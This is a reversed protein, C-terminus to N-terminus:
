LNTGSLICPFFISKWKVKLIVLSILCSLMDALPMSWLVGMIGIAHGLILALPITLIIQRLLSLGAAYVPKGIAQFFMAVLCGCPMLYIFMNYFRLCKRAFDMYLDSEDGFLLLLTDPFLQFVAWAAALIIISIWISKKFCEKVRDFQEAGYNFGLIPQTGGGIGIVISTVLQNLKCTVGFAALPIDPGYISLGGYFVMLNNIVIIIIVAAGQNIFSALGLSCTKKLISPKPLFYEKKLKITKFKTLCIVYYIACLAQGIVTAWAAGAMGWDLVLVFIADLVINAVCGMVLGIMSEKPRGDARILGGLGCGMISVPFGVLIIRGYEICYPMSDVTAGFINCLPELFIQFVVLLIVGSAIVSTIASGVGKAAEEPKKMGLNLSMYAATGDGIMLGIALLVVVMPLIVNTAANGLYGVGQGIFIQDVMNYVSNIVLSVIGPISFKRMLKGIPVVGLPNAIAASETM